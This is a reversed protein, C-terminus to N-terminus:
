NIYFTETWNVTLNGDYFGLRYTGTTIMEGIESFVIKQSFNDVMRFPYGCDMQVLTNQFVEEWKSDDLRELTWILINNSCSGDLMVYGTLNVNLTDYKELKSKGLKITKITKDLVAVTKPKIVKKLSVSDGLNVKKEPKPYLYATKSRYENYIAEHMDIRAKQQHVNTLNFEGKKFVITYPVSLQYGSPYTVYSWLWTYLDTNQQIKMTDNDSVIWLQSTNLCSPAIFVKKFPFLSDSSRFTECTLESLKGNHEITFVRINDNSSTGCNQPSINLVPLVYFAFDGPQCSSIEVKLILIILLILFRM